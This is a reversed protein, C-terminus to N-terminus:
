PLGERDVRGCITNIAMLAEVVRAESFELQGHVIMRPSQKAPVQLVLRCGGSPLRQLVVQRGGSM